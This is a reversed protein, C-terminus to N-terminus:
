KLKLETLYRGVANKWFPLKIGMSEIKEMSFQTHIPRRIKGDVGGQNVKMLKCDSKISTLIYQTLEFPSCAGKNAIHYLGPEPTLEILRKVALALDVAYTISFSQKSDVALNKKKKFDEIRNLVFNGKEPSGKGGFLFSTRIIISGESYQRLVSDEGALKSMGYIQLPRPIDDEKYPEKKKGDFVYNTSFHILLAKIKKAALALNQVAFWNLSFANYPDKECKNLDNCAATNIIIDPRLTVIYNEADALRILDFENMDPVIAQKFLKALESGLQGTKGIILIKAM